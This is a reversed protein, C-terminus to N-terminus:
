NLDVEIEQFGDELEVEFELLEQTTAYDFQSLDLVSGDSGTFWAAPDLRVTVEVGSREDDLVLPESFAREIEIEADFYVVFATASGGTPTFTGEARMSAGVPWDPFATQVEQLLALAAAAEDDEGDDELDEIEFDLEDYTGNPVADTALAVNGGDLPLNMFFPGSEFEACDDILGEECSDDSGELEFEAVIVHASTIDLVGNSGEIAAQALSGGAVPSTSPPAVSAFNLTVFTTGPPATPDDSCAAVTLGALLLASLSFRYKM